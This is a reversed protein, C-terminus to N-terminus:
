GTGAHEVKPASWGPAMLFRLIEETAEGGGSGYKLPPTAGEHASEYFETGPNEPVVGILHWHNGDSSAAGSLERIVRCDAPTAATLKGSVGEMLVKSSSHFSATGTTNEWLYKSGDTYFGSIVIISGPSQMGDRNERFVWPPTSDPGTTNAHKTGHIWMGHMYRSGSYPDADNVIDWMAGDVVYGNKQGFTEIGGYLFRIAADQHDVFGIDEVLSNMGGHSIWIPAVPTTANVAATINGDLVFGEVNYHHEWMERDTVMEAITPPRMFPKGDSAMTDPRRIIAGVNQGPDDLAATGWGEIFTHECANAMIPWEETTYEGPGIMVRGRYIDFIFRLNSRAVGIDEYPDDRTEGSFANSGGPHCFKTRWQLTPM